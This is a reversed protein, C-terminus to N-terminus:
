PELDPNKNEGRFCLAQLKRYINTKKKPIRLYVCCLHNFFFLMKEFESSKLTSTKLSFEQITFRRVKNSDKRRVLPLIRRPLYFDVIECILGNHFGVWNSIRENYVEKKRTNACYKQCTDWFLSFNFKYLYNIVTAFYIFFLLLLELIKFAIFM